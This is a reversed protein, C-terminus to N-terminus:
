PGAVSGHVLCKGVCCEQSEWMEYQVVLHRSIRNGLNIACILTQCLYFIKKRSKTQKHHPQHPSGVKESTFYIHLKVSQALSFGRDKSVVM